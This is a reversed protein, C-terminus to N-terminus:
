VEPKEDGTAQEFATYDAENQVQEQQAAGGGPTSLAKLYGANAKKQQELQATLQQIQAQMQQMQQQIQSNARVAKLVSSKTRYGEMLSIVTEPPLPAGAQACVQAAQM